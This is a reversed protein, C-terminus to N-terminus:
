WTLTSDHDNFNGDGDTDATVQYQTSNLAIFRAKTNSKGTIVISGSTPVNGNVDVQFAVETEIDVYGYDPDYFRGSMSFTASSSTMNSMSIVLNEVKYTKDLTEDKMVMSMTITASTSNISMSMTGSATASVGTGSQTFEFNSLTVNVQVSNSQISGVMKITGNATVSGTLGDENSCYSSFKATIDFSGTVEDVTGSMTVTGGCDGPMSDSGSVVAMAPNGSGASFDAQELFDKVFQALVVSHPKSIQENGNTSVAGFIDGAGQMARMSNGNEYANTAVTNANGEDIQVQTELGDYSIGGGGGGSGGCNILFLSMSLSLLFVILSRQKNKMNVEQHNFTNTLESKLCM